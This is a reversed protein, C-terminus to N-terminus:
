RSALPQMLRLAKRNNYRGAIEPYPYPDGYSRMARFPLPEASRGYLTNPDADKSWGTVHLMFDRKWGRPAPPLETAPFRLTVEDGSGMVALRDDTRHLLPMVDGYRTYLGPAQNWLTGAATVHYDFWEPKGPRSILKSFGRFRLRASVPALPRRQAAPEPPALLIEDWYVPLDTVIRLRRADAGHPLPVRLTKPKGAPVGMDAAITRWVGDSGRAELAPFRLNIGAQQAARFQSGDPWDVWGHAVLELPGAPVAPFDIEIYGPAYVGDRASLGELADRGDRARAAVPRLPAAKSEPRDVAILRVADLYAVERLEETIRIEYGGNVPVLAGGPIDISEEPHLPFEGRNAGLPATGLVDAIFQFRRGNWTFVSPCSGLLRPAERIHLPKGAPVRVENQVLGNPWTVRVSDAEATPGLDFTIRKGYYWLKRYLNGARIEVRSNYALKPSKVGELTVPLQKGSPTKAQPLPGPELKGKRNFLARGAAIIDTLSDHNLDAARLPGSISFPLDIAEYQGLLRDRYLVAPRGDYAVLVDFADSEPHLDFVVGATARGDAFPFSERTPAATGNNRYLVSVDGLLLLDLDYDHDYDVWVCARYRGPFVHSLVKASDTGPVCPDATGDNNFDGDPAPGSATLEPAGPEIVEIVEAYANWEVDEARGANKIEQFRKLERAADASRGSQRYLNYLQFHPAALATDLRAATEFAGIAEEPRGALRLLAGRQYHGVADGPVLKVFREFQELAQEHRGDKKYAIGLNFWTHPLSPEQKQAQELEAAGEAAKGARLLALGYNVREITSRPARQLAQQFEKVAQEQAAPTEYYAKGLNRHRALRADAGLLLWVAAGCIVAGGFSLRLLSRNM